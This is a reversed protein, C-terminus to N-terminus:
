GDRGYQATPRRTAPGDGRDCVEIRTWGDAALTPRGRYYNVQAGIVRVEDGERLIRGVQSKVWITLKVRGTGDDLLGVQRQSAHAPDWLQAVTAEVTVQRADVDELKGIPVVAGPREYERELAALSAGVLDTGDAVWRALRRAIAARSGSRGVEAAIDAAQQNVAALEDQTLAERPDARDPDAWPDVSAARRQFARNRERSRIAALERAGRERITNPDSQARERTRAVEAERAQLREEQALTLGTVGADPHNADVKARIEQDVTPRRPQEIPAAEDAPQEYSQEDVSVEQGLVNDSAM